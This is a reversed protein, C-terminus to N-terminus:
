TATGSPAYVPKVNAAAICCAVFRAQVYLTNVFLMVWVSCLASLGHSESASTDARAPTNGALAEAFLTSENFSIKPAPTLALLVTVHDNTRM